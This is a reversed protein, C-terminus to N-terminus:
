AAQAQKLTVGPKLRAIVRLSRNEYDSREAATFALPTWMQTNPGPFEFDAPAVGVVTHPKGDLVVIQGIVKPAAAFHSRWYQDSLVVAQSENAVFARGFAANVGLLQFLNASVPSVWVEDPQGAGTLTHFEWNQYAALGQFVGNGAEWDTFDGVSVADSDGQPNMAGIGVLQAPEFYPVPHLLVADVLSFIATNAGIGLALTLVAVASFGPHKRLMRLGYRVDMFFNEVSPWQWVERSREELLTVNGFERRAAVTADERSMGGAVLEEIKEALHGQMEASLDDYLGPRSFLQKIWDM